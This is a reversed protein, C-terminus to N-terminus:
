RVRFEVERVASGGNAVLSKASVRLVYRGPPLDRLPLERTYGYGGKKGQLEDSSREDSAAFMERGDDTFVSSAISVRHSPSPLNDYVEAFLALTDGRPYDRTAAPAGPLVGNLEPDPNATPTRIASQSTMAIGSLVLPSKSFDPVDLTQTVTGIAGGNSEKAAVRIQYRGPPVTLRRLVRFGNAAVADHSQPSLRLPVSTPGGDQMKGSADVALMHVQIDENFRGNQEVFRLTAPALEVAVVVSAKSGPGIFPAAFVSLGVGAAPIPNALADIIEPPVKPDTKIAATPPKGKPATYGNRAQVKVGPRTVRVEVKRFRGDRKDNTSYYGLVYYSSNDAVIREFGATFDNQNVIAFGGTQESLVRLSDQARRVENQIMTSPSAFAPDDAPLGGIDMADDLGAGLGRADVGYFSVGARTAEAIADKMTDRLISNDPTFPNDMDYDIGEGFWVVAKRRGRVSSLYEALNKLTILSNRAKHGREALNIDRPQEGLQQARYYDDLKSLLESPLKTGSFKEVSAVLRARSSTFEQGRDAAGGTYVVAALDNAGIYREIFQRAARRVRTSRRFDTQLDDLVLVFVRGNFEERNSRVDPEIPATKFLPADQREVPLNVRTFVKITQPTGDEVIHFDNDTLDSVFNGQADTARADIEVYNVEVRFTPTQSRPPPAQGALPAVALLAFAFLSQCTRSM